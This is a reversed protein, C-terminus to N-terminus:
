FIERFLKLEVKAADEEDLWTDIIYKIKEMEGKNKAVIWVRSFGSELDRKVNEIVHENAEMEIEIAIKEGDPKIWGVDAGRFEITGQIQKSIMLQLLRHPFGGKGPLARYPKNLYDFGPKLIEDYTGPSGRKGFSIQHGKIFERREMDSTRRTLEWQSWKFYNKRENRNCAPNEDVHNLYDRESTLVPTNKGQFGTQTRIPAPLFRSPKLRDLSIRCYEKLEEESVEPSEFHKIEVLYSQSQGSIKVVAQQRKLAPLKEMQYSKLGMAYGMAKADRSDPLCFAFWNSINALVQPPLRHPNQDILILTIGNKRCERVNQIMFPESLDARDGAKPYFYRHAEELIVVTPRIEHPNSERFTRWWAMLYNVCFTRFNTDTIMGTLFICSGKTMNELRHCERGDFPGGVLTRVRNDLTEISERKRSMPDTKWKKILNFFELVTPYKNGKSALYDKLEEMQNQSRDRVFYAERFINSVRGYFRRQDCGPPYQFLPIKLDYPNIISVKDIGLVKVLDAAENQEDMLIVSIGKETLGSFIVKVNTTKGSGSIGGILSHKGRFDACPIIFKKDQNRKLTTDLTFEM